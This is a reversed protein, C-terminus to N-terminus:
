VLAPLDASAPSGPGGSLYVIPDGRQEGVVTVALSLMKNSAAPDPGRQEPVHLVGCRLNRGEEYGTPMDFPCRVAEFRAQAQAAASLPSLLLALSLWTAVIKM